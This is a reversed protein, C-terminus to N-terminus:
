AVKLEGTVAASILARRHELLLAVQQQLRGALDNRRRQIQRIRAVDEGQRLLSVSPIQISRLSSENVNAVMAGTSRAALQQRYYDIRLACALFENNLRAADTRVAISDSGCVWGAQHPGVVAARGVDGKRGLVLDGPLLRHRDLRVAVSEPVTVNNEPVIDGRLIHTPNVVPIGGNVYESAALQTGFPGTLVITNLQRLSVTTVQLWDGVTNLMARQEWEDLLTVMQRKRAILADIRATESDLFDAIARQMELPPLPMREDLLDFSSLHKVTTFYTVDNVAQLPLPVVYALFRQDLSLRARLLCLRQNLAAAGDQWVVSNFDGDMGVVIDGERLIVEDPVHGDFFTIPGGPVLDRIRVVRVGLSDNFGSSEFPYGNILDVHDKIRAVPWRFHVRQAWLSVTSM